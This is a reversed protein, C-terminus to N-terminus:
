IEGDQGEKLNYQEIVSQFDKIPEISMVYWGDNQLKQVKALYKSNEADILIYKLLSYGRKKGDTFVAVSYVKSPIYQMVATEYVFPNKDDQDTFTFEKSYFVREQPRSANPSVQYIIRTTADSTRRMFAYQRINIFGLYTFEGAILLLCVVILIFVVDIKKNKM